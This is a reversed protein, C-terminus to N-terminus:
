RQAREAYKLREGAFQKGLGEAEGVFRDEWILRDKLMQYYGHGVERGDRIIIIEFKYGPEIHVDLLTAIGEIGAANTVSDFVFLYETETDRALGLRVNLAQTVKEYSIKAPLSMDEWSKGDHGALYADQLDRGTLPQM